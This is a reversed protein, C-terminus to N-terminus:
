VGEGGDGRGGGFLVFTVLRQLAQMTRRAVEHGGVVLSGRRRLHFGIALVLFGLVTLLLQQPSSGPHHALLTSSRTTTPSSSLNSGTSSPSQTMDDRAQGNNRQRHATAPPVLLQQRRAAKTRWLTSFFASLGSPTYRM